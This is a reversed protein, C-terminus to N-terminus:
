LVRQIRHLKQTLSDFQPSPARPIKRQSRPRESHRRLTPHQRGSESIQRVKQSTRRISFTLVFESVARSSGSMEQSLYLLDTPLHDTFMGLSPPFTPVCGGFRIEPLIQFSRRGAIARTPRYLGGGSPLCWHREPNGTLITSHSIDDRGLLVSLLM